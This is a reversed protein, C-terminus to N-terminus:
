PASAILPEVGEVVAWGFVNLAYFGTNSGNVVDLRIGACPSSLRREEEDLKITWRSGLGPTPTWDPTALFPIWDEDEHFGQKRYSLKYQKPSSNYLTIRDLVCCDSNLELEM